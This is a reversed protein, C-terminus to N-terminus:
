FARLQGVLERRQADDAMAEDTMPYLIHEEKRNHEILTQTLRAIADGLRAGDDRAISETAARMSDRIELHEARMVRTPGQTMGTAREFVPFLIGEELDIHRGLGSSFEAFRAAADRYAGAAALREVDPLIADLRRHDAELYATVTDAEGASSSPQGEAPGSPARAAGKRAIRVKWAAPGRELYEHESEGPRVFKFQQLLPMPDHDNVIVLAEGQKLADFSQFVVGHRLHPPMTRLDIEPIGTM